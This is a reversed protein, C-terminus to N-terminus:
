SPHLLHYCDNKNRCINLFPTHTSPDSHQVFTLFQLRFLIVVRTPMDNHAEGTAGCSSCLSCEWGSVIDDESTHWNTRLNLADLQYLKEPYLTRTSKLFALRIHKIVLKKLHSVSKVYRGYCAMSESGAAYSSVSSHSHALLHYESYL